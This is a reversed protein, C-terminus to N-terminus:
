PFKAGRHLMVPPKITEEEGQIVARQHQYKLSHTTHVHMHIYQVHAKLHNAGSGGRLSGLPALALAWM